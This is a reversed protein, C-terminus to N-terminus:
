REVGNGEGAIGPTGGCATRVSEASGQHMDLLTQAQDWSMDGSNLSGMLQNLSSSLRDIEGLCFSGGGNLRDVGRASQQVSRIASMQMQILLRGQQEDMQGSQIGGLLGKINTVTAQLDRAYGAAQAAGPSPNTGAHATAIIGLSLALLTLIAILGPFKTLKLM